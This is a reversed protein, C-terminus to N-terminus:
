LEELLSGTGSNAVITGAPALVKLHQFAATGVRAIPGGRIAVHAFGSPVTGCASM